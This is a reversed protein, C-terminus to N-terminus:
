QKDMLPLCVHFSSGKGPESDVTIFGDHGRTIGHVVALGLGTGKGVDKTTFFPEFIRAMTKEDMGRGSDSVTLKLYAGESVEHVAAQQGNIRMRSLEINIEGKRDGIADGANIGLNMLVQGIQGANALVRDKGARINSHIRIMAPLSARLMTISEKIIRALHLPKKGEGAPRSFNMLDSVLTRARNGARIIEEVDDRLPDHEPIDDRLMDSHGLIVGLLSNFDHAIGGALQGVAEMKQSQLLQSELHKLDSIDTGYVYVIDQERIPQYTFLFIKGCCHCEVQVQESGQLLLEIDPASDVLSYWVTGALSKIGSLRTAADNALLVKGDRGLKLVPAPNCEAFLAMERSTEEARKREGVEVGLKRNAEVLERTREDVLKELSDRHKALEMMLHRRETIDMQLGFMGTPAGKEDLLIRGLDNIWRIGGDPRIIRYEINLGGKATVAERIRQEAEKRDDPHVRELWTAYNSEVSGPEFGMLHYNEDSWITKNTAMDWKWAGASAAQMSM